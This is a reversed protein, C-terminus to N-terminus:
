GVELIGASRLFRERASAEDMQREYPVCGRGAPAREAKEVCSKCLYDMCIKCLGGLDEPPRLPKVIVIRHCHNCRFTDMERVVRGDPGREVGYGHPNRM